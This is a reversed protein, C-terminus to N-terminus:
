VKKGEMEKKLIKQIQLIADESINEHAIMALDHGTQIGPKIYFFIVPINEKSIARDAISARLNVKFLQRKAM